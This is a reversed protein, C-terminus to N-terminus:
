IGEDLVGDRGCVRHWWREHLDGSPWIGWNWYNKMFHAVLDSKATPMLSRGPVPFLRGCCPDRRVQDEPLGLHFVCRGPSTSQVESTKWLGSDSPCPPSYGGPVSSLSPRRGGAIIHDKGGQLHLMRKLKECSVHGLAVHLKALTNRLPKTLSASAGEFYIYDYQYGTAEGLGQRLQGEPSKEVEVPVTEWEVEKPCEQHLALTATTGM